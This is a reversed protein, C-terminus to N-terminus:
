LQTAILQNIFCHNIFDHDVAKRSFFGKLGRLRREFVEDSSCIIKLRLCQGYPYGRKVHPPHCSGFDLYQHTDTPKSYM